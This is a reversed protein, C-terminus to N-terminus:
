CWKPASVRAWRFYEGSNRRASARGDCLNVVAKARQRAGLNCINVVTDARQRAWDCIDVVMKARQRAGLRFHDGGNRRALARGDCINVVTGARQCAGM